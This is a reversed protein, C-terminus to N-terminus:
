LTKENENNKLLEIGKQLLISNPITILQNNNTKLLLYFGRIDKVKGKLEYDKDLIRIHDGIRIPHYFFLIFSATLNSLLSWQAFFGIGLVALISSIFIVFQKLEVGLIIIFVFLAILYYSFYLISSIVKKRHPEIARLLAFKKLARNTLVIIIVLSFLLVLSFVIKLQFTM